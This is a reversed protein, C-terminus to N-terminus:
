SGAAGGGPPSLSADAEALEKPNLLQRCMMVVDGPPFLRRAVAAVRLLDPCTTM